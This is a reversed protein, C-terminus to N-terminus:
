KFNGPTMEMFLWMQEPKNNQIHTKAHAGCGCGGGVGVCVCRHSIFM